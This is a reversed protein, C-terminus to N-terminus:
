CKSPKTSSRLKFDVVMDSYVGVQKSCLQVTKRQVALEYSGNTLNTLYFKGDDGTLSRNTEKGNQMIVVWVSRVPKKGVLVTGKVIFTPPGQQKRFQPRTPSQFLVMVVCIELVVFLIHTRKSRTGKM